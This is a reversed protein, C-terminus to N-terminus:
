PASGEALFTAANDRTIRTRVRAGASGLPRGPRGGITLRVAGASGVDLLVERTVEVRQQEGARYLRAVPKGGDVSMEVWCDATFDLELNMTEAQAEATTEVPPVVPDAPAPPLLVPAAPVEAETTTEAPRQLMVRVRWTILAVVAIVVVLIAMRLLILARKQRELFQRDDQTIEPRRAARREAAERESQELAAIFRSVTQEPDMGVEVAYARVFSRGFIGGPLRSFDNRELAELAVVSIKTRTEMERLSVGAAERAQKLDEGLQDM